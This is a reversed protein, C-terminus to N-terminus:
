DQWLYDDYQINKKPYFTPMPPTSVNEELHRRRLELAMSEEGKKMAWHHNASFIPRLLWSFNRILKKEAQIKWDYKVYCMGTIPDDTLTWVGKGVFDGLAEITFGYPAKTEVVKFKWKLIYPLWGKTILGVEKGVGGVEGKKLISVDLYVSPWWTSLQEVDELIEYVEKCNSKFKWETIFHYSSM